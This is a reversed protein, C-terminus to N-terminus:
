IKPQGALWEEHMAKQKEWEKVLKKRRSKSVEKGSADKVPVGDADWESFESTQFMQLHSVKAKEGLLRKKEADEAERQLKAAKKAAAANEGAARANRLSRDVPRVLAPLPPDRDELYIDLNWLHTDRLQDCLLLFDKASAKVEVLRGTDKRFDELVQVYPQANAPATAQATPLRAEDVHQAIVAYDLSGSRALERVKNRLKSAPYVYPRAQTPIELGSWALRDAQLLDGESDLGFITVIRTIWRSLTLLVDDSPDQALNYETILDSLVRMAAPTNFSDSLAADLEKKAKDFADLLQQDAPSTKRTGDVASVGDRTRAAELSKLFFNNLKSEWSTTAKLLEETVEITDAWSSLLFCVRLSRPTWEPRLLAERITTFNKLSKSMQRAKMGQIGLHGTHLFYNVWQVRTNGSASWYAESQALENDHHPFRLDSGGSHLDIVKGLVESAMASCEIHWGPRGEGWPSPWSPEGPKSAKWLAFHNDNRKLSSKSLSGEGDDQLEKNSKNSPELRAYFHGAREFAEIDFYVSGDSTQYAFGNEIIKAVFNVIEPMYETVRTIVDPELVNLSQMDESFRNEFKRTLKTFISHDKSDIDSGHLSDLYPLLIDEAQTLFQSLGPANQLAEAASAATKLHVKLKGEKDGAVAGEELAQGDLVRRYYKGVVTNYGEPTVDPPLLPLNKQVYQQFATRTIELVSASTPGDAQADHDRKFQEFLHQQRGRLIIKDDVDTINMVFKVRFGFYDRLIRRLIDTSVYNRAHGLHADDYVTPGCTYWTVADSAVPVFQNKTRTLSNYVQLSPFRAQSSAQPLEWHPQLERAKSAM